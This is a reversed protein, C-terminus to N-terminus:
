PTGETGALAAQRAVATAYRAAQRWPHEEPPRVPTRRERKPKARDAAPPPAQPSAPTWRCEHERGDARRRVVRLRGDETQRVLVRTGAPVRGRAARDLQLSQGEFHVVFDNAVVRPYELCFIDDPNLAPDLPVHYDAASSPVRHFRRNHQPLYTERVYANAATDDSIDLRRLKKILRDQHVGNSREVRGKAQPTSAAIIRIGLKSCMRGFQTQAELGLTREQATPERKYVNKWDTYLARPVGELAIWDQLVGVAAWITEQEGFRLLTRGTADDVMNMVCSPRGNREGRGEFWDHFSGDLQVLEGFHARRERRRPKARSRRIRCWLGAELMWERLTTRPIVLGHEEELHEAVLTPGFRQGAGKAASGGYEQAVGELIREREATSRARNSRRGVNGHVLGERGSRRYRVLLRKAQRYSIGLLEAAETLRLAGAVVRALLVGREYEKSSM